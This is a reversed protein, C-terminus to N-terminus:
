NKEISSLRNALIETSAGKFHSYDAVLGQLRKYAQMYTHKEDSSILKQQYKRKIMKPLDAFFEQMKEPSRIYSPNKSLKLVKDPSIQHLFKTISNLHSATNGIHEFQALLHNLKEFTDMFKPINNRNYPIKKMSEISQNMKEMLPNISQLTALAIPSEANYGTFMRDDEWSSILNRMSQNMHNFIRLRDPISKIVEEERVKQALFEQLIQWNNDFKRWNRSKKNLVEDPVALQTSSKSRAIDKIKIGAKEMQEVDHLPLTCKFRQALLISTIDNAKRILTNLYNRIKRVNKDIQQILNQYVEWINHFKKKLRNFQAASFITDYGEIKEPSSLSIEEENFEPFKTVSKAFELVINEDLELQLNQGKQIVETIIEELENLVRTRTKNQERLRKQFIMQQSSTGLQSLLNNIKPKFEEEQTKGTLATLMSMSFTLLGQYKRFIDNIIEGEWGIEMILAKLNDRNLDQPEKETGLDHVGFISFLLQEWSNIQMLNQINKSAKEMFFHLMTELNKIKNNEKKSGTKLQEQFSKLKKNDLKQHNEGEGFETLLYHNFVVLGFLKYLTEESPEETALRSITRSLVRSLEENNETSHYLSEIFSLKEGDKRPVLGVFCYGFLTKAFEKEEENTLSDIYNLLHRELQKTRIGFM